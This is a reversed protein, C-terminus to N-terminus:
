VWQTDHFFIFGYVGAPVPEGAIAWLVKFSITQTPVMLLSHCSTSIPTLQQVESPRLM